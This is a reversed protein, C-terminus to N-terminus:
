LPDATVRFKMNAKLDVKQTVTEKTTIKTRLKYSNAKIYKDLKTSTCILDLSNSTANINTLYALEIEDTDNTSIYLHIEKLFSFTKDAPNTINLKLEKLKVDKVLDAKTNNNEFETTSNTTVDPTAVDFPSNIPLGANVSFTAENSIYFTLLKDIVECSSFLLTLLLSISLIKRKM